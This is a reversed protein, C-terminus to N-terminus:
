AGTKIPRLQLDPEDMEPPLHTPRRILHDDSASNAGPVQVPEPFEAQLIALIPDKLEDWEFIPDRVVTVRRPEVMVVRVGNVGFLKKTLTMVRDSPPDSSSPSLEGREFYAFAETFMERTNAIMSDAAITVELAQTKLLVGPYIPKSLTAIVASQANAERTLAEIMEQQRDVLAASTELQKGVRGIEIERNIFVAILVFNLLMSSLAVLLYPMNKKM